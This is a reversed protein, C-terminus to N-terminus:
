WHLVCVVRCTLLTDSNINLASLFLVNNISVFNFVGYASNNNNYLKLCKTNKNIKIFRYKKKGFCFIGM